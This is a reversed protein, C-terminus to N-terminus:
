LASRHLPARSSRLVKISPTRASVPWPMGLGTADAGSFFQYSDQFWSTTIAPSSEVKGIHVRDFDLTGVDTTSSTFTDIPTLSDGPYYAYQITGDTAGTGKILRFEVRYTTNVALVTSSTHVIANPKNRIEFKGDLKLRLLAATISDTGVIQIFNATAAWLTPFRVYVSCQITSAATVSMVPRVSGGAAGTLRHSLTGHSAWTNDYVISAGTGVSVNLWPDGSLGGSNLDTVAVGNTGGESSNRKIAM